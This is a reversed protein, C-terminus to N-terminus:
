PHASPPDAPDCVESLETEIFRDASDPVSRGSHM